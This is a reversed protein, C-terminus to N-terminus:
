KANGPSSRPFCLGTHQSCMSDSDLACVNNKGPRGLQGHTHTHTHKRNRCPSRLPENIRTKRTKWGLGIRQRELLDKVQELLDNLLQQLQPAKTLYVIRAARDGQDLQAFLKLQSNFRNYTHWYNYAHATTYV